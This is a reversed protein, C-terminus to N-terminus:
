ATEEGEGEPLELRPFAPKPKELTFGSDILRAFWDTDEFAAYDRGEPAIGLQDLIANASTPVIPMIAITLDRIAKFLTMLVATMREPDTKKLAWPAQDDVYQNCAFVARMWEEIGQSFNLEAFARPLETACASNVKTLLDADDQADDCLALNGDMNKFIMSLSRQVLNGFSNALDANVRTIIAEESYSGDKGFPIDALLFYRLQDVGLREALEMPDVVNGSSKSMKEGRNLLFGHGFIKKPLPLGASMLFAPWYVAHFRVIDKGIIHVDAPWYKAYDGGTDPYGVGTMYTTLADVWVYM